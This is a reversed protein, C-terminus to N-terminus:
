SQRGARASRVRAGSTTGGAARTTVFTGNFAQSKAPIVHAHCPWLSLNECPVSVSPTSPGAAPHAVAPPGAPSLPRCRHAVHVRDEGLNADQGGGTLMVQDNCPVSAQVVERPVVEPVGALQEVLDPTCEAHEAVLVLDLAVQKAAGLQRGAARGDEVTGYPPIELALLLPRFRQAPVIARQRRKGGIVQAQKAAAIAQLLEVTRALGHIRQSTGPRDPLVGSGLLLQAAAAHLDLDEEVEGAHQPIEVLELVRYFGELRAAPEVDLRLRGGDTGFVDQRALALEQHSPAIEVARLREELFCAVEIWMRAVDPFSDPAHV